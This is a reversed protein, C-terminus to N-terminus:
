LQLVYYIVVKQKDSAILDKSIVALIIDGLCRGKCSHHVISKKISGALCDERKPGDDDGKRMMWPSQVLGMRQAIYGDFM